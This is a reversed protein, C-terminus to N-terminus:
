IEIVTIKDIFASDTLNSKLLIFAFNELQPCFSSTLALYRAITHLRISDYPTHRYNPRHMHRKSEDDCGLQGKVGLVMKTTAKMRYSHSRVPPSPLRTGKRRPLRWSSLNSYTRITPSFSFSLVGSAHGCGVSLIRLLEMVGGPAKGTM